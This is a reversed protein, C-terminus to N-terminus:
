ISLHKHLLIQRSRRLFFRNWHSELNHAKYGLKFYLQRAQHNNELVHLYLDQFGWQHSFKECSILLGSAVGHRRYKPHVALNSLYPFSRGTQVWSDNFRVGLEVTGVLNHTSAASTDIAVLCVHHPAPSSLRHKLDEYIGLRLLPFAWGWFGDNAHFSEAIIQAIGNLDDPTAARIQFQWSAQEAASILPEQHYPDFFWSTLALKTNM